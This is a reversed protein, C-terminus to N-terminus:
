PRAASLAAAPPIPQPVRNKVPPISQLYAFIAELDADTFNAFAPAPMPPLLPRGRGLHRANRITDVFNRRTWSGLGSKGTV